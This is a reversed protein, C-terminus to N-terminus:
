PSHFPFAHFRLDRQNQGPPHDAEGEIQPHHEMVLVNHRFFCRIHRHGLRGLNQKREAIPLIVDGVPGPKKATRRRIRPRYFGDDYRRGCFSRSVRTALGRGAPPPTPPGPVPM